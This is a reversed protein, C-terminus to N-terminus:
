FVDRVLHKERDVFFWNEALSLSLLENIKDFIDKVVFLNQADFDEINVGFENEIRMILELCDLSDAGFDVSIHSEMHIQKPPIGLQESVVQQM